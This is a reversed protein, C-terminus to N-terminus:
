ELYRNSKVISDISVFVDFSLVAEQNYNTYINIWVILLGTYLEYTHRHVEEEVM